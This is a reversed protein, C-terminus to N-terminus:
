PKVTMPTTAVREAILEDVANDGWHRLPQELVDLTRDAAYGEGANHAAEVLRRADPRDRNSDWFSKSILSLLKRQQLRKENESSQKSRSPCRRARNYAARYTHARIVLLDECVADAGPDDGLSRELKEALRSLARYDRVRFRQRSATSLKHFFSCLV